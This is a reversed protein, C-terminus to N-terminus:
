LFSILCNLLFMLVVDPGCFAFNGLANNWCEFRDRTRCTGLLSFNYIEYHRINNGSRGRYPLYLVSSVGKRIYPGKFMSKVYQVTGGHALTNGLDSGLDQNASISCECFKPTTYPGLGPAFNPLENKNAYILRRFM